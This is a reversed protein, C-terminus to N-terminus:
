ADVLSPMTALEGDALFARGTRALDLRSRVRAVEAERRDTSWACTEAMLMAAEQLAAASPLQATCLDTRRFLADDLGYAM